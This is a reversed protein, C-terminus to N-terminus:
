GEYCDSCLVISLGLSAFDGGTIVRGCKDCVETQILNITALIAIGGCINSRIEWGQRAAFTHLADRAEDLASM